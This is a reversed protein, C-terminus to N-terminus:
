PPWSSVSGTRTKASVMRAPACFAFERANTLPQRGGVRRGDDHKADHRVSAPDFTMRMTASCRFRRQCKTQHFFLCCLNKRQRTTRQNFGDRRAPACTGKNQYQRKGTEPLNDARLTLFYVRM